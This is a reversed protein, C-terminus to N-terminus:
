NGKNDQEKTVYAALDLVIRPSNGPVAEGPATEQQLLGVPQLREISERLLRLEQSINTMGGVLAEMLEETKSSVPEHDHESRVTMPTNEMRTPEATEATVWQTPAKNAEGPRNMPGQFFTFYRQWFSDLQEGAEIEGSLLRDAIKQMCRSAISEPYLETFPKQRRVAETVRRDYYVPGLAQVPIALYQDVAKKFKLYTEKAEEADKCNNIVARVTKLFGNAAMVKLLAYADTLSTPEPTIVLLLESSTMCFSMVSHAMGASTDFIIFDYTDLSSFQEVIGQLQGADLNVLSEIGSSGPLIDIGSARMIIEQPKRGASIIDELTKDPYLGLLININAMGLDVDFLCVKKDSKALTVALNLAINTKGVGGKGSAVTITRSV